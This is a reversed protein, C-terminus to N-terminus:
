LKITTRTSTSSLISIEHAACVSYHTFKAAKHRWMCQHTKGFHNKIQWSTCKLEKPSCRLWAIQANRQFAGVKLLQTQSLDSLLQLCSWDSKEFMPSQRRMGKPSKGVQWFKALSDSPKPFSPNSSWFSSAMASRRQTKHRARETCMNQSLIGAVQSCVSSQLVWIRQINHPSTVKPYSFLISGLYAYRIFTYIMYIAQHHSECDWSACSWNWAWFGLAQKTNKTRSDFSGKAQLKHKWAALQLYTFVMTVSITCFIGHNHCISSHLYNRRLMLHQVLWVNLAPAAQCTCPNLSGCFFGRM